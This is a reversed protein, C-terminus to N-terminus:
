VDVKVDELVFDGVKVDEAVYIEVVINALTVM